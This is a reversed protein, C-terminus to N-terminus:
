YRRQPQPPSSQLPKAGTTGELMKDIMAQDEASIDPNAQRRGTGEEADHGPKTPEVLALGNVAELALDRSRRLLDLARAFREQCNKQNQGMGVNEAFVRFADVLRDAYATLIIEADRERDDAM